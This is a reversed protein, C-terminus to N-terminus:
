TSRIPQRIPTGPYVPLVESDEVVVTGNVVVYPIGTAPLGAQQMTANDTVPDFVVVDADAGVQVRGKAAMQPVGNRELFSAVQYTMKSVADNLSLQSNERAGRLVRAATGAARPHGQVADYPTDWDRALAGTKSVTLCFADSGVV